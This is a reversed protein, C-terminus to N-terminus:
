KVAKLGGKKLVSRRQQQRFAAVDAEVEELFDLYLTVTEAAVDGANRYRASTGVLADLRAAISEEVEITVKRYKPARRKTTRDPM